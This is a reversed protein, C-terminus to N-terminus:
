LQIIRDIARISTTISQDLGGSAEPLV